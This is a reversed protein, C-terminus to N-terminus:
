DDFLAGPLTLSLIYSMEPRASPQYKDTAPLNGVACHHGLHSLPMILAPYSQVALVLSLLELVVGLVSDGTQMANGFLSRPRTPLAYRLRLVSFRGNGQGLRM